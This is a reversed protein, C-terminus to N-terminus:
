EDALDERPEDAELPADASEELESIRREAEKEATRLEVRRYVTVGGMGLIALWLWGTKSEAM